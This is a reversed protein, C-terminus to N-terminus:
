LADLWERMGAGFGARGALPQRAAAMLGIRSLLLRAAM